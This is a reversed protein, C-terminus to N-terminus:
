QTKVGMIAKALNMFAKSVPSEPRMIVIPIKQSVSRPVDEDEKIISVVPIKYLSKIEDPTMEFEKGLVKNIIIGAINVKRDKLENVVNITDTVPPLLPQLVIVVGNCAKLIEVARDHLGPSTDLIIYDYKKELDKMVKKLTSINLTRADALSLAGPVVHMKTPHVYVADTIKLEGKLVHSLSVPYEEIGLHLGVNSITKNGDIICVKKGLEMLAAALNVVITTKGVGGKASAVGIIM